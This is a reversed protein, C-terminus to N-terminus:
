NSATKALEKKSSQLAKEMKYQKYGMVHEKYIELYSKNPNGMRKVEKIMVTM